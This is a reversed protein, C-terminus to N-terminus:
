YRKMEQMRDIIQKDISQFVGGLYINSVHSDICIWGVILMLILQFM